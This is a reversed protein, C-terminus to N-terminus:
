PATKAKRTAALDLRVRVIGPEDGVYQRTFGLRDCVHLMSANEDRVDGFISQMKRRRAYAILREILFSGVGQRSILRAVILAFEAERTDADFALRAVAAILADGPPLPEAIVLAFGTAPDVSCLQLAYEPTLETIPHLFRMRVEEPSLLLFGHRLPEADAPDIPRLIVERGDGLRLRERQHGLRERQIAVNRPRFKVPTPIM